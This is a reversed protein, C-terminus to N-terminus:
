AADEEGNLLQRPGRLDAFYDTGVVNAAARLLAAMDSLLRDLVVRSHRQADFAVLEELRSLQLHHLADLVLRQEESIREGDDHPLADVRERLQGLQFALSRPNGEDHLLLNLVAGVQPQDHYGRRYAQLSDASRLLSELLLTEVQPDRRAIVTSRLM